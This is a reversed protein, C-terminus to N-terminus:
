ISRWKMTEATSRNGGKSKRALSKMDGRDRSLYEFESWSPEMCGVRRVYEVEDEREFSILFLKIDQAEERAKTEFGCVATRHREEVSNEIVHKVERRGWGEM